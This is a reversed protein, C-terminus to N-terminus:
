NDIMCAAEEFADGSLWWGRVRVEPRSLSIILHVVDPSYSRELDMRSPLPESNPHSHYVAVVDHKALDMDKMAQFMSRPESRYEVPSAAENLLPYCALARLVEGDCRGGLLGCCENPLESQAHQVMADFIRPPLLLREPRSLMAPEPLCNIKGLRFLKRLKKQIRTWVLERLKFL